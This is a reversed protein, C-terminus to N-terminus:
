NLWACSTVIIYVESIWDGLLFVNRRGTSFLMHKAAPRGRPPGPSTPEKWEHVSSPNWALAYQESVVQSPISCPERRRMSLPSWSLSSQGFLFSFLNFQVPLLWQRLIQVRQELIVWYCQINRVFAIFLESQCLSSVGYAAQIRPKKLKLDTGEKEATFIIISEMRECLTLYVEVKCVVQITHIGKTYIRVTHM